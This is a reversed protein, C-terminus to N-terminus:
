ELRKEVRYSTFLMILTVAFVCLFAAIFHEIAVQNAEPHDQGYLYMVIAMPAGHYPYLYRAFPTIAYISLADSTNSLDIFLKVGMLKLLDYGISVVIGGIANMFLATFLVALGTYFPIMTGSFSIYHTALRLAVSATNWGQGFAFGSKVCYTFFLTYIPLVSIVMGVTIYAFIQGKFVHRMAGSSQILEKFRNKRDSYYDVAVIVAFIVPLYDQYVESTMSNFYQTTWGAKTIYENVVSRDDALVFGFRLLLAFIGVYIIPTRLIRKLTTIYSVYMTVNFREPM